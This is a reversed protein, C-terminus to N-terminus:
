ENLLLSTNMICLASHQSCCPRCRPQPRHASLDMRCPVPTPCLGHLPLSYLALGSPHTAVMPQPTLPELMRAPSSVTCPRLESHLAHIRVLFIPSAPLAALPSLKTLESFCQAGLGNMAVGQPPSRQAPGLGRLQRRAAAALECRAVEGAERQATRPWGWSWVSKKGPAGVKQLGGPPRGSM